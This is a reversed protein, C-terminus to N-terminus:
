AGSGTTWKANEKLSEMTQRPTLDARRLGAMGKNMLMYGVGMTAIAVLLTALWPQMGLQILLAAVAALLVLLGAHILAGGAAAIAVQRGAVRARATLETTALEFEQRVLTGTEQSLETFLERLSRNDAANAM